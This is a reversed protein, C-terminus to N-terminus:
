ITSGVGRSRAATQAAALSREHLLVGLTRMREEQEVGTALAEPVAGAGRWAACLAGATAATGDTDGGLLIAGEAARLYDGRTHLFLYAAILLLSITMGGVGFGRGEAPPSAFDPVESLVRYADDPALAAARLLVGLHEATAADLPAVQRRLYAVFGEPEIEARTLAYAFAHAVGAAGGVAAPHRHTVHSSRVAAASLAEPDFWYFLGLPAIRMAAGNMVDDDVAVTDWALGADRREMAKQYVRGYGRARGSRWLAYMRDAYDAADLGRHAVLSDALLLAQQTDDSWSGAPLQRGLRGERYGRFTLLTSRDLARIEDHRRGETPRGLADGVALGLLAETFQEATPVRTDHSTPNM